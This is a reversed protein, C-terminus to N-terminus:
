YIIFAIVLLCIAAVKMIAMMLSIGSIDADFFMKLHGKINLVGWIFFGVVILGTIFTKLEYASFGAGKGFLDLGDVAIHIM